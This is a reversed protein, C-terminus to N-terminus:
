TSTVSFLNEKIAMSLSERRTFRLLMMLVRGTLVPNATLPNEAIVVTRSSKAKADM